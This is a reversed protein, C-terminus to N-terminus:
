NPLLAGGEVVIASLSGRLLELETPSLRRILPVANLVMDRVAFKAVTNGSASAQNLNCRLPKRSAGIAAVASRVSATSGLATEISRLLDDDAIDAGTLTTYDIKRDNAGQLEIEMLEVRADRARTLLAAITTPDRETTTRLAKSQLHVEFNEGRLLLQGDEIYWSFGEVDSTSEVVRLARALLRESGLRVIRQLGDSEASVHLETLRELTIASSVREWFADDPVATGDLLFQLTSADLLTALEAPRPFTTSPEGAGVWVAQLLRTLQSAQSPNLISEVADVGKGTADSDAVAAGDFGAEIASGAHRAIRSDIFGLGGRLLSSALLGVVPATSAQNTLTNFASPDAVLTQTSASAASLDAIGHDSGPFVEGLPMLIPSGGAVFPLDEELDQASSTARLFVQRPEPRNKWHLVLDPAFTHNFFPTLEITVTSDSARLSELVAEKVLVVNREPDERTLDRIRSAFDITM